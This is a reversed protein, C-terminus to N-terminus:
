DSTLAGESDAVVAAESAIPTRYLCVSSNVCACKSAVSGPRGRVRVRVPARRFDTGIQAADRHIPFSSAQQCTLSCMVGGTAGCGGCMGARSWAQIRSPSCPSCRDPLNGTRVSPAFPVRGPHHSDSEPDSSRRMQSTYYDSRPPPTAHFSCGSHGYGPMSERRAYPGGRGEGGPSLLMGGITGATCYRTHVPVPLESDPRARSIRWTLSRVQVIFSHTYAAHGNVHGSDRGQVTCVVMRFIVIGDRVM